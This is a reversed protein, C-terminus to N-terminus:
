MSHLVMSAHVVYVRMPVNICVRMCMIWVRMTKLFIMCAYPFLVFCVRMSYTILSVRMSIMKREYECPMDYECLLVKVYEGSYISCLVRMSTGYECSSIKFCVRMSSYCKISAYWLIMEYECLGYFVYMSAYLWKPVYECSIWYDCSFCYWCVRMLNQDYECLIKSYM